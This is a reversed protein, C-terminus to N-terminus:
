IASVEVLCSMANPGQTLRSTGIDLTLVNPNGAQETEHWKKGFGPNFWAGTAMLVVSRTIGDNLSVGALCSGRENSVKVVDGDKLNRTAADEPHMFLTEKGSTKNNQALPTQDLQSHLRDKPQISILHLPWRKATESGLWEVPPQWEPHPAFDEYQYDAIKQSFLEIKGSQTGLPNARPRKRFSEFFVYDKEPKPLEVFGREWFTEFDPWEIETGQQAQGCQKYIQRLWADEDRGQTYAERYGLREALDAFIDYDNRAQHQPAVAQHMALV